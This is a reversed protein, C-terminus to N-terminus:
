DDIEYIGYEGARVVFAQLEGLNGDGVARGQAVRGYLFDHLSRIYLRESQPAGVALHNRRGM